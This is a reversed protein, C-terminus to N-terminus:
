RIKHDRRKPKEQSSYREQTWPNANQHYGRVEWFGREWEATFIMKTLWKTSKWLYIQPVLSRLPGGHDRHLPKGDHEFALLVDDELLYGEKLPLATTYGSLAEFTVYNAEPLPKVLDLITSFKIGAFKQELLSWTTVCHLDSTQDSRPLQKFEDWTWSLQNEVLGEVSVTWDTGNFKPTREASLVPWKKALYQGPPVRERNEKLTLAEYEEVPPSVSVSRALKKKSFIGM